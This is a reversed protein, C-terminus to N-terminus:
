SSTNPLSRMQVWVSVYGSVSVKTTRKAGYGRSKIKTPKSMLEFPANAAEATQYLPPKEDGFLILFRANEDDFDSVWGLRVPRKAKSKKGPLVVFIPLKHMMANKTAQVEAADRAPPRSTKPYHYIVGDESLDDSYHRGTHLIASQSGMLEPTRVQQIPKILGFGKRVETFALSVCYNLSSIMSTVRLLTHWLKLRRERETIIDTM